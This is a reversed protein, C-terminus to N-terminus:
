LADLSPITNSVVTLSRSVNSRLCLFISRLLCKLKRDLIRILHNIRKNFREPGYALISTRSERTINFHKDLLDAWHDDLNDICYRKIWSCKIAQTFHHLNIIGFGGNKTPAYLLDKSIWHRGGLKIGLVFANIMDQITNLIKPDIDLVTAIYTLQPTLKSKAITIRGRLSLHYPTWTKIQGAIKEKINEFNIDLKKLQSDITFGLITFSDDWKMGLGPCIVYLKDNNPGIPIVVTKDINCALGSIQHFAQIYKTCNRLNTKTRTLFITTDDAFTESKSETTAFTIGTLNKTYNIKLLLIEVMLIFVYPSIVDGQPVGQDLTIKKSM